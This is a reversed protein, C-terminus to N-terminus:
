RRKQIWERAAEAIGQAIKARHDPSALLREAQPNSVFAGSASPVMRAVRPLPQWLYAARPRRTTPLRDLRAPQAAAKECRAEGGM